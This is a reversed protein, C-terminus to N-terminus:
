NPLTTDRRSEEQVEQGNVDARRTIVGLRMVNNILDQHGTIGRDWDKRPPQGPIQNPRQTPWWGQACKRFDAQWPLAMLATLDGEKVKAHDLHFTFPSQYLNTNTILRGMEIGPFLGEGVAGDLVTKTLVEPAAPDVPTATGFDAVFDGQEYKDLYDRQWKCLKFAYDAHTFQTEVATIARVVNKRKSAATASTDSLSAFNGSVAGWTVSNHVWRLGRAREIMPMIHHTFSPKAPINTLAPTAELAADLIRDYLTVVGRVAPAYDPPAVVVWAPQVSLETGNNLVITAAVPGDSVDDHWGPNNYFDGGVPAPPNEYTNSIGAGGLVLLNGRDDTRIEGLLVDHGVYTGALRVPAGGQSSVSQVNSDIIRERRDNNVVVKTEELNAPPGGPRKVADKKNVLRVSWKIHSGRPLVVEKGPSTENEFEYIRFRAAQRKVQFSTATSGNLGSKYESVPVEGTTTIETGPGDPSESAIFFETPHNGLRAIGIPPYIRYIM